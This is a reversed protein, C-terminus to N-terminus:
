VVIMIDVSVDCRGVGWVARGARAKTSVVRPRPVPRVVKKEGRVAGGSKPMLREEEVVCGM